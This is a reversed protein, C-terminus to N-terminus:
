QLHSSHSVHMAILFCFWTAARLLILLIGQFRDSHIQKSPQRQQQQNCSSIADDDDDDDDDDTEITHPTVARVAWSLENTKKSTPTAEMFLFPVQPLGEASTGSSFDTITTDQTM